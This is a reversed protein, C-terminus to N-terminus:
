EGTGPLTDDDDEACCRIDLRDRHPALFETVRAGPVFHALVRVM